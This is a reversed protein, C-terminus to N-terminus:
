GDASTMPPLTRTALSPTEPDHPALIPALLAGLVFAGLLMLVGIPPAPRRRPRRAPAEPEVAIPAAAVTDTMVRHGWGQGRGRLRSLPSISTVGGRRSAPSPATSLRRLRSAGHHAIPPHPGSM